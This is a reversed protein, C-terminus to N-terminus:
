PALRQVIAQLLRSVTGPGHELFLSPEILELEVVEYGDHPNGLLDVRAYLTEGPVAALCREAVEPAGTPATTAEIRGGFDEQSRFDGRRPTKVVAHGFTGGVFILSLEGDLEVTSRYPQIMFDTSPLLRDLLQQGDATAERHVLCTNWASASVVPKLVVREWGTEQLVLALDVVNGSALWHTPVVSIGQSRLDDLYTKRANWHIISPPNWLRTAEGVVDVWHLFADLHLHYDWTSRLLVLDFETWAVSADQWVVPVASVGRAELGRALLRDDSSLDPQAPYTVLAVQM